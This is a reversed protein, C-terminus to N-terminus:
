SLSSFTVLPIAVCLKSMSSVNMGHMLLVRGSSDVFHRGSIKVDGGLAAASLDVAGQSGSDEGHSNMATQEEINSEQVDVLRKDTVQVQASEQPHVNLNLLNFTDSYQAERKLVVALDRQAGYGDSERCRDRWSFYLSLKAFDPRM